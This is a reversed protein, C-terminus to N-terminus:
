RKNTDSRRPKFRLIKFILFIFAFRFKLKELADSTFILM